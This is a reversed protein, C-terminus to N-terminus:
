DGGVAREFVDELSPVSPKLHRVQVGCQQAVEFLRRPGAVGAVFVRLLGEETEHADLGGARLGALFAAADGKVRVEYVPGGSGKLQGIPGSMVISGRDLVVVHDCTREVDPLLHSSLLVSIGKGHALDHVLDLMEDRGGPDMADTPEDLLLLDPDHVLAQALKVRQRMGASFTDVTRYRAEGLGVYYLVEHARETADTSSLGSLRGCYAVFAVASMGPIHVDGEPLYGIRARAALPTARVDLGLLEVRGREPELLGLLVNLLTSKGAGNPGLLGVAGSPLEASVDRLAVIDGYTVTVGALTAVIGGTSAGTEPRRDDTSPSPSPPM